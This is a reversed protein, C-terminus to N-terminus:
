KIVNIWKYINSYIDFEKAFNYANERLFMYEDKGMMMVEDVCNAISNEDNPIWFGANKIILQDWPTGKSAIIPTGQSLAEIVVNGFNESHSVLLTFYANAYLKYKEVGQVSGLFIVKDKLSNNNQLILQLKDYYEDFQKEISGAILLKFDSRMFSKSQALGLFLKDLAKIPAIRGVYLFYNKIIEDRNQKEPLEMYNPIIFSESNDGFYKKIYKQEESSTAHFIVKKAFLLKIIEIYILKAKNNRIASDFLEGRPSWIIKKNKLVAFLAVIFLPLYFISSLLVIDCKHLEIISNYIIKFSFKSKTKCYIIRINELNTWKDYDVINGEIFNNSTVVSVNIGKAILGKSLWYLTKSPGGLKSPYFLGTPIFVHM